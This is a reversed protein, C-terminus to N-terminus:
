LAGLCSLLRNRRHVLLKLMFKARDQSLPCAINNFSCLNELINEVPGLPFTLCELMTQQTEPYIRGLKKLFNEHNDRHKREKKDKTLEWSLHPRGKNIYADMINIDDFSNFKPKQIEIGMSTGNDFVPSIERRKKHLDNKHFTIIGWNGQHRDSNGILADFTLMKVLYSLWDYRHGWDVAELYGIITQLNHEGGRDLDYGEILRQMIDGGREYGDTPEEYFWEILAGCRREPPVEKGDRDLLDKSNYAAFTPPVSVGMLKGLHYAFIEVWFQELYVPRSRKLIYLKSPVCFKYPTNTPWVFFDKARAGEGYVEDSIYPAIDIIENPTQIKIPM